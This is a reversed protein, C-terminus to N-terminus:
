PGKGAAFPLELCWDAQLGMRGPLSGFSGRVGYLEAACLSRLKPVRRARLLKDVLRTEKLEFYSAYTMFLTFPHYLVILRDPRAQYDITGFVGPNQKAARRIIKKRWLGAM